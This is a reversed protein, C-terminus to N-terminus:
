VDKEHNITKTATAIITKRNEIQNYLLNKYIRSKTESLKEKISKIDDTAYEIIKNLQRTSLKHINM